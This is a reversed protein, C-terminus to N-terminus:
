VSFIASANVLEDNDPLDLSFGNAGLTMPERILEYPGHERAAEICIFYGGTSVKDGDSTTSDWLLSYDGPTRTASSLEEANDGGDSVRYWRKLDDLWKTGKSSQKYWLAVTDVLTGEADEIWVAVYPNRVQSGQAAFSFDIQLQSTAPVPSVAFSTNSSDLSDTSVSSPLTLQTPPATTSNAVSSTDSAGLIDADSAGCALGPLLAAASLFFSGRVVTSKARRSVQSYRSTSRSMM